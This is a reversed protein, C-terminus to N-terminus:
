KGIATYSKVMIKFQMKFPVTSLLNVVLQSLTLMAKAMRNKNKANYRLHLLLVFLKVPITKRDVTM